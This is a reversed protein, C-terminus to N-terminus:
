KRKKANEDKRKLKFYDDIEKVDSKDLYNCDRKLRKWEAEKLKMSEVMGTINTRNWKGHYFGMFQAEALDIKNAM